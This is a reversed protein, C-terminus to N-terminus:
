LVGEKLICCYEWRMVGKGDLDIQAEKDTIRDSNAVVKLYQWNDSSMGSVADPIGSHNKGWGRIREHM